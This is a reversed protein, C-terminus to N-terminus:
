KKVIKQGAAKLPLSIYFTSGINEQSKFWVKGGLQEISSKTIYMGLGTSSEFNYPSTNSAQYFKQFIKAQEAAPIGIGEDKVSIIIENKQAEVKINLSKNDRNYKIGNSILNHIAKNLIHCDFNVTSTPGCEEQITIHRQDALPKFEAVLCKIMDALNLPEITIKLRGDEIRAIDLLEEVLRIEQENVTNLNKVFDGAEGKMLDKFKISFIELSLKSTALPTKLQHSIVSVFENKLGIAKELTVNQEELKLTAQKIKVKLELNFNQTKQFLLANEISISTEASIIELIQIDKQNYGDGSEKPGFLMLGLLRNESYLPITAETKTKTLFNFWDVFSAQDTPSINRTIIPKAKHSFVTKLVDYKLSALQVCRSSKFHYKQGYPVSWNSTKDDYILVDISKSYFAASLLEGIDKFMKNLELNARLARNIDALLIRSDYLSSFFYKNSIKFIYKKVRSFILLTLSLIILYSWFTLRPFVLYFFYQWIFAPIVVTIFSLFFVLYNRLILKINMLHKVIIAYYILISFAFPAIFSIPYISVQYAPLFGLSGFVNLTSFAIIFYVLNNRENINNVYEDILNFIVAGVYIIFFIIFFHHLIQAKSHFGWTYKFIGSLFYNSQSFFLFFLSVLYALKLFFRRLRTQHTVALSFHYEIAPFFVMGIYIFRDWFIIQGDTNSSFMMFTGFLWMSSILSVAFFLRNLSKKPEKFLVIIGLILIFLLGLLIYFKSVSLSLM